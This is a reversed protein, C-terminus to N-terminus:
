PMPVVAQILLYAFPWGGMLETGSSTWDADNEAMTCRHFVNKTILTGGSAVDQASRLRDRQCLASVVAQSPDLCAPTFTHM